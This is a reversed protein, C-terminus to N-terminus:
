VVEGQYCKECYVIEKRDPAYSTEFENPCHEDDKHPPHSLGTNTYVGNDSKVGACQCKRHLFKPPNVHSFREQYRCNPCERPLPLGFKKLLELEQKIIRFSKKCEGCEIIEKVIDLPVDKISDPLNLATVTPTYKTPETEFWNFGKELAEGKSLPFYRMGDTENYGFVSLEPPFFEGYKYVRGKQDIYPNEDMSKIIETRLKEYEEKSYQKNLICYKKNRINVCGLMHSSSITFYCYDLDFPAPWCECCFRSNSAGEGAILCEYLREANNGWGTYDYCDKSKPMSLWQLYRGDEAGSVMYADKANKSEYIYDGTVNVNLPNGKMYKEPYKLYHERAKSKMETIVKYSGFNIEDLKKQYEEKSYPVNWIHYSKKRLDICGFCNSCGFCNRCFYIDHCSDCEESYFTNYCKYMGINSYGLECEKIRYSDMTDKVHALFDSYLVNEAYDSFFTLYCNKQYAAYSVYESNVMSPYLSELAFFPTVKILDQIQELFPRKPDWDRGYETGDWKDSWWCKQCYVKIKKEPAHMSVVVEGCMDCKRKYLTRMNIFSFRRILRCEPCWTPPPVKIKEYFEFDEPEITFESKCNQCKKVEKNM